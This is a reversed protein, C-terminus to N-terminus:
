YLNKSPIFKSYNFAFTVPPSKSEIQTENLNLVKQGPFLKLKVLNKKDTDKSNQVMIAFAKILLNTRQIQDTKIQFM